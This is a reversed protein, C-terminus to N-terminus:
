SWEGFDLHLRWFLLIRKVGYWRHLIAQLVWFTLWMCWFLCLWDIDAATDGFTYCRRILAYVRVSFFCLIKMLSFLCTSKRDICQGHQFLFEEVSYPHSHHSSSWSCRITPLLSKGSLFLASSVNGWIIQSNPPDPMLLGRENKPILANYFAPNWAM